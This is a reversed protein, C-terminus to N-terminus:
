WSITRFNTSVKSLNSDSRSDTMLSSKSSATVSPTALWPRASNMPAARRLRSGTSASVMSRAPEAARPVDAFPATLARYLLPLGDKLLHIKSRIQALAPQDEYFLTEGNAGEWREINLLLGM